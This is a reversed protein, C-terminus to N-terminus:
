LELLDSLARIVRCDAEPFLGTPDYLVPLLGAARAGLADAYYNDGVYVAAGPTVGALELAQHFIAPDPKWARAEGASLTFDFLGDLGYEQAAPGLASDRNSVLGTVYGRERLAGLTTRTEPPVFSAPKYDADFRAHIALVYEDLPGSVGLLTLQRRTIERWGEVEGLQAFLRENAARDALFQHQWRQTLRVAEPGFSLGLDRGYELFAQIGSPRSFHLTGDLDFLYVQLSNTPM